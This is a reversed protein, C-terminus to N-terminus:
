FYQQERGQFELHAVQIHNDVQSLKSIKIFQVKM